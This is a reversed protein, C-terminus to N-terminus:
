RGKRHRSSPCPPILMWTTPISVKAVTFPLLLQLGREGPRRYSCPSYFPYIRQLKGEVAKVFGGEDGKQQVHGLRIGLGSGGIRGYEGV